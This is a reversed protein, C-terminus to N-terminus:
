LRNTNHSILNLYPGNFICILSTKGSYSENLYHISVVLCSMNLWNLLIHLNYQYMILKILVNLAFLVSYKFLNIM